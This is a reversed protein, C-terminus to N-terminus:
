VGNTSKLKMGGLIFHSTTNTHIGTNMHVNDISSTCYETSIDLEYIYLICKFLEACNLDNYIIMLYFHPTESRTRQMRVPRINTHATREVPICSIHM